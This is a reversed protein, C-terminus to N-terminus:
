GHLRFVEGVGFVTVWAVFKAVELATRIRWYRAIQNSETKM